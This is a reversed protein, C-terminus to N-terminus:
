LVRTCNPDWCANNELCFSGYSCCALIGSTAVNGCPIFNDAAKKDVDYYCTGNSIYPDPQVM